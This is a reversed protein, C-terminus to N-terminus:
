TAKVAARCAGTTASGHAGTECIPGVVQVLDDAAEDLRSLNVIEHWAEYLAPRILSNMGADIGVYHVDGKRKTQTVRPWCCAPKPWSTAARSWGCSSNRIPRSSRPWAAGLADLDLPLDELRSARSGM